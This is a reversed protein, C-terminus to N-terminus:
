AAIQHMCLATRVLVLADSRRLSEAASYGAVHESMGSSKSGASVRRQLRERIRPRVQETTRSALHKRRQVCACRDAHYINGEVRQQTQERGHYWCWCTATHTILNLVAYSQTDSRIVAYGIRLEAYHSCLQWKVSPRTVAYHSRLSQTIGAYHRRLSQTVYTFRRLM